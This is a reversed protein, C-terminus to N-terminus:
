IVEYHPNSLLTGKKWGTSPRGGTWGVLNNERDFVKVKGYETGEKAKYGEIINEMLNIIIVDSENGRKGILYISRMFMKESGLIGFVKEQLHNYSDYGELIITKDNFKYKLKQIPVDPLSNWSTNTILEGNILKITLM